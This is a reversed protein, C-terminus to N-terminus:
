GEDSGNEGGDDDPQLLERQDRKGVSTRAFQPNKRDFADIRARLSERGGHRAEIAREHGPAAHCSPNHYKILAGPLVSEDNLREAYGTLVFAEELKIAFARDKIQDKIEHFRAILESAMLDPNLGDRVLTLIHEDLTEPNDALQRGRAILLAELQNVISKVAGAADRKIRENSPAHGKVVVAENCPACRYSRCPKEHHQFLCVGYKQPYLVLIQNGTRAVPRDETARMVEDMSTMSVKSDGAVVLDTRLGYEAELGDLRALGATLDELEKVAPMTARDARREPSATDYYKIQNASLRKAWKNALVDPLGADLAQTTLWRRPDHTGIYAVEVKGNVVMKIGLKRFVSAGKTGAPGDASTTKDFKKDEVLRLRLRSYKIASPLYPSTDGDFLVLMDSLRGRYHNGVTVKRLDGIARKVRALLVPELAAWPVVQIESRPNRKGNRTHTRPNPALKIRDKNHLERWIKNSYDGDSTTPEKQTLQLIDFLSSRDIDRGRLHELEPPLYLTDPNSEYWKVLMRSRSGHEKIIDICIDAFKIMFNLIPKAGWAAGKSGKMLLMQHVRALSVDDAGAQRETEASVYDELTFRDDVAMCLPENIRSPCCMNLGMVALAVKDYASLRKDGRLMATQADSLAEIQRDLIQSKAHKFQAGAARRLEMFRAASEPSLNWALREIAGKAAALDLHGRLMLLRSHLASASSPSTKAMKLLEQELDVLHRRKLQHLDVDLKSLFRWAAMQPIPQKIQGDLAIEAIVCKLAVGYAPDKAKFDRLSPSFNIDLLQTGYETCIPWQDKDFDIKPWRDSMREKCDHRWVALRSAYRAADLGSINDGPEIM